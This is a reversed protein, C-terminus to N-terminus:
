IESLALAPKLNKFDNTDCQRIEYLIQGKALKQSLVIDMHKRINKLNPLGKEFIDLKQNEDIQLIEISTM